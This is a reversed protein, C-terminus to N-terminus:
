QNYKTRKVGRRTDAKDQEKTIIAEWEEFKNLVDGVKTLNMMLDKAEKGPNETETPDITDFYHRLRRAATKASQLLEMSPTMQLELYKECADLVLQSPEEGDLLDEKLEDLKKSVAMDSYPSNWDCRHYIYAFLRDSNELENIERFEKIETLEKTVQIKSREFTFLQKM